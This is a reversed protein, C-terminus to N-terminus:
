LKRTYEEQRLRIFTKIGMVQNQALRWSGRMALVRSSVFDGDTQEMSLGDMDIDVSETWEKRFSKIEKEMEKKDFYRYKIEGIIIASCIITALWVGIIM